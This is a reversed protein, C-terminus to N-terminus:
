SVKLIRSAEFWFEATAREDPDHPWRSVTGKQSISEISARADRPTSLSGAYFLSGRMGAMGHLKPFGRRVMQLRPVESFTRFGLGM